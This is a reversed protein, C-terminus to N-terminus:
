QREGFRCNLASLLVLGRDGMQPSQILFTLQQLTARTPVNLTVRLDGDIGPNFYYYTPM